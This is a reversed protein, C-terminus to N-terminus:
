AAHQKSCGVKIKGSCAAADHTSAPEPLPVYGRPQCQWFYKDYFKCLTGDACCYEPDPANM